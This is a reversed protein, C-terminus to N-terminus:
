YEHTKEKAKAIVEQASRLADIHDRNSTREKREFWDLYLTTKKLAELLEDNISGLKEIYRLRDVGMKHQWNHAEHLWRLHFAAKGATIKDIEGHHPWMPDEVIATLADALRLAEPIKENM